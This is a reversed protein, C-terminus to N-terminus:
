CSSIIDKDIYLRDWFMIEGKNIIIGVGRWIDEGWVVGLGGAVM